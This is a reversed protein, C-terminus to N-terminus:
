CATVQGHRVEGSDEAIYLGLVRGRIEVACVQVMMGHEAQRAAEGAMHTRWPLRGVEHGRDGPRLVYRRQRIVSASAPLYPLM